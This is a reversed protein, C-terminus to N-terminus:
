RARSEKKANHCLVGDVFFNQYDVPCADPVDITANYVTQVKSGMETISALTQYSETTRYSETADTSGLKSDQVPNMPIAQLKDECTLRQCTVGHNSYSKRNPDICCWGKGQVFLPHDFTTYLLPVDEQFRLEYLQEVQHSSMMKIESQRLCDAGFDWSWVRTGATVEEIPASTGTTLAV